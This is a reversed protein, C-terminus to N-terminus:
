VARSLRWTQISLVLFLLFSVIGAIWWSLPVLDYSSFGPAGTVSLAAGVPTLLLANQVTQHGFPADRGLWILIPFLFVGIVVVYTITTSVATSRFLSGVAASIALAFLTTWGLCILVLRVQMATDPRIYVMVVYGPLTALLVFALTWIVSLVKGRVIKFASLPTARLLEWGGSDRESSILGSALSPAMLVVLVVQMLVLLSGVSDVGWATVSTTSLFTLVISIVACVSVLRLLWQSRGFKRSRFEKVMVPNMYWPIGAKRRQPDVIYMLRRVLRTKTGQDDTIDGQARSQDFIRYNLRSLTIVAFVVSSLVTIIVFGVTNPLSRIGASNLDGQGMIEVVAPLPSLNRIWNALTTVIGMSSGQLLLAPVISFFFLGLVIAYTVRVGADASNVFSSILMGLTAYQLVLLTLVLYLLGFQSVLNIGGMAYCAAAAPLSSMLVLAAFLLVGSIKGFYIAAATLPSNLLLELTGDNKENVISTAPFAPVLFVIGALLGYGLIRFVDLSQTGSLDVTGESPWRILVALAFVATLAMLIAFAKQSRLIGFFERRVVPNM